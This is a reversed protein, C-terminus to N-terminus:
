LFIFTHTFSSLEPITALSRVHRWLFLLETGKVSLVHSNARTRLM